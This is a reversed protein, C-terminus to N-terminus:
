KPLINIVYQTADVYYYASPCSQTLFTHIISNKALSLPMAEQQESHSSNKLRLRAARERSRKYSYILSTTVKAGEIFQLVVQRGTYV